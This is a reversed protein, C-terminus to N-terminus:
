VLTGCMADSGSGTHTHTQTHHTHSVKLAGSLIKGKRKKLQIKVASNCPDCRQQEISVTKSNGWRPVGRSKEVAGSCTHSVSSTGFPAGLGYLSRTTRRVLQFVIRMKTEEVKLSKWRSLSIRTLSTLKETYRPLPPNGQVEPPIREMIQGSPGLGKPPGVAVFFFFVCLFTNQAQPVFPHALPGGSSEGWGGPLRGSIM